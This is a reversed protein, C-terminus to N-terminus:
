RDVTKVVEVRGIPYDNTVAVPTYPQVITGAEILVVAPDDETASPIGGNTGTEWVECSAGAPLGDVTDNTDDDPNATAVLEGPEEPWTILEGDGPDFTCQYAFTYPLDDLELNAENEGIEKIVQLGGVPFDNTITIAIPDAESGATVTIEAATGDANPPDYTVTTAGRDDTEEVTCLAGVPVDFEPQAFDHPVDPVLDVDVPFGPVSEGGFTCDVNTPYPGATFAPNVGGTVEKLVSFAGFPFDNTIGINVTAGGESPITVEGATGDANAPDYTVTTAGLDDTETVTCVSGVPAEVTETVGPTLEVDVPFGPVVTGNFTCDM